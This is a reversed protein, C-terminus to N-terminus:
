PAWLEDHEDKNHCKNCMSRQTTLDYPAPMPTRYAYQGDQGYVDVVFDWRGNDQSSAGHARHCTICSVQSTATPGATSTPTMNPDEFAVQPIYSTAPNGGTQDSTGNYQGYIQAISAGIASGSPHRMQVSNNHFNGHCNACWASMGGQYATHLDNAEVATSSSFGPGEECTPAPNTFTYNGAEVHGVGYLFRFSEQGHPDHCSTCSMASASYTGGPAVTHVGDVGSNKSPAIVNHGSKYGPVYNAPQNGNRGDNINTATLWAFNGAGKQPPPNLPDAGWVAGRSTAHCSLCVDSPTEDILLYGNGNPSNPDVLVGNQMNHMTHCGSCRAVGFEHFALVPSTTLLMLGAAICLLLIAKKMKDEKLQNNVRTPYQNLQNSM